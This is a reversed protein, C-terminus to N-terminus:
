RDKDRAAGFGQDGLSKGIGSDHQDVTSPLGSLARQGSQYGCTAGIGNDAQQVVRRCQARGLIIWCLEDVM